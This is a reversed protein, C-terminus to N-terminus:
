MAPAESVSGDRWVHNNTKPKIPNINSGTKNVQVM